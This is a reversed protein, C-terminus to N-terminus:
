SLTFYMKAKVNIIKDMLASGTRKMTTGHHRAGGLGFNNLTNLVEIASSSSIGEDIGQSDSGQGWGSEEM